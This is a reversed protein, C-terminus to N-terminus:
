KKSVNSDKAVVVQSNPSDNLNMLGQCSIFALVVVLVALSCCLLRWHVKIFTAIRNFIENM